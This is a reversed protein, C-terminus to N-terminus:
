TSSLSISKDGLYVKSLRVTWYDTDILYNWSIETKNPTYAPLDYGGFTMFSESSSTKM